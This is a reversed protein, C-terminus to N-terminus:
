GEPLRCPAITHGVPFDTTNFPIERYIAIGREGAGIRLPPFYQVEGRSDYAERPVESYM